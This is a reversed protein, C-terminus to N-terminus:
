ALPVLWDPFALIWTQYRQATHWGEPGYVVDGEFDPFRQRFEEVASEAGVAVVRPQFRRAQEALQAVRTGAALAVVRLRDPFRAVVDLTTVGISGTSGLITLAKM